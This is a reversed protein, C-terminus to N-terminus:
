SILEYLRAVLQNAVERPKVVVLITDDGAVTGVVGTIEAADITSAVAHATGPLTKLVVLNESYDISLVADNFLRRMRELGARPVPADPPAYYYGEHDSVKILKLERIDRSVTGQTVAFGIKQLAECLEEQTSIKENNIAEIIALHRRAKM